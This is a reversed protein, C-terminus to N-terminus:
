ESVQNRGKEKSRYLLEDAKKLADEKSKCESRLAIGGSVTINLKLDKYSFVTKEIKECIRQAFQSVEDKSANTILVVFEEGGFRAVIDSPRSLAGLNQSFGKLIYDGVMHGHTDNIKKFHDIDFFVLAYDINKREFNSEERLLEEELTRKSLLGTLFDTKSKHQEQLLENRLATIKSKLKNVEDKKTELESTMDKLDTNLATTLISLKEKISTFNDGKKMSNIEKSIADVNHKKSVEILEDISQLIGDVSQEVDDTQRLIEENDKFVRMNIIEKIDKLLAMSPNHFNKDIRKKIHEIQPALEKTFSPNLSEKTIDAYSKLLSSPANTSTTKQEGLRKIDREYSAILFVVLEDLLKVNKRVAEAQKQKDLRKIYKKAPTCEELVLGEEKAIKCFTKEYVDPTITLGQRQIRSLTKKIIEKVLM